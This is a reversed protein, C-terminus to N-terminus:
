HTNIHYEYFGPFPMWVWFSYRLAVYLVACRQFYLLGIRISNYWVSGFRVLGFVVRCGIYLFLFFLRCHRRRRGFCVAAFLMVIFFISKHCTLISKGNENEHAIAWCNKSINSCERFVTARYSTKAKTQVSFVFVGCVIAFNMFWSFCADM